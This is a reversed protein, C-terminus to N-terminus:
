IYSVAFSLRKLGGRACSGLGVALCTCFVRSGVALDVQNQTLLIELATMASEVCAREEM